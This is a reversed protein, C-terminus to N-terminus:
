AVEIEKLYHAIAEQVFLSKSKGTKKAAEAVAQVQSPVTSVTLYVWSEGNRKRYRGRTKIESM